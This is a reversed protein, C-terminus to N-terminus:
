GEYYCYLMWAAVGLGAIIFLTSQTRVESVLNRKNVDEIQVNDDNFNLTGLLSGETRIKRTLARTDVNYL